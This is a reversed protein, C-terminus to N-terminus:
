YASPNLLALLSKPHKQQLIYVEGQGDLNEERWGRSGWSSGELRAAVGGVGSEEWRHPILFPLDCRRQGCASADRLHMIAALPVACRGILACPKSTPAMLAVFHAGVHRARVRTRRSNGHQEERGDAERATSVSADDAHQQAKAHDIDTRGRKLRQQGVRYSPTPRNSPRAKTHAQM